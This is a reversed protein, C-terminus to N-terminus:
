VRNSAPMTASAVAGQSVLAADGPGLTADRGFQAMCWICSAFMFSFDDSEILSKPRYFQAGVGRGSLMSLGPMDHLTRDFHLPSDPLPETEVGLVKRGFLEQWATLREHEAFHDSCFHLTPVTDTDATSTM